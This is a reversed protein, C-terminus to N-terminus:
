EGYNGVGKYAEPYYIISKPVSFEVYAGRPMQGFHARSPNMFPEVEFHVGGYRAPWISMTKKIGRSHLTNKKSSSRM